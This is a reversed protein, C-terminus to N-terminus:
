AIIRYIGAKPAIRSERGVAQVFHFVGLRWVRLGPAIVLVALDFIPVRYPAAFCLSHKLLYPRRSLYSRTVCLCYRVRHDFQTPRKFFM